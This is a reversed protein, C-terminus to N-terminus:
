NEEGIEDCCVPQLDYGYEENALGQCANNLAKETAENESNATVYVVYTVEEHLHVEYQKAM